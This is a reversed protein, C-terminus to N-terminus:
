KLNDIDKGIEKCENEYDWQVGMAEVQEKAAMAGEYGSSNPAKFSKAQSVQLHLKLKTQYDNFMKDPEPIKGTNQVEDLFLNKYQTQFTDIVKDPGVNDSKLQPSTAGSFTRTDKCYSTLDISPAPVTGKIDVLFNNSEFSTNCFHAADLNQNVGTAYVGEGVQVSATDSLYNKYRKVPKYKICLKATKRLLYIHNRVRNRVHEKYSEKAPGKDPRAVFQVKQDIKERKCM